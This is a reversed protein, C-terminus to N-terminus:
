WNEGPKGNIFKRNLDFKEICNEALEVFESKNLGFRFESFTKVVTGLCKEQENM